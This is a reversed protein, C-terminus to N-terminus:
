IADAAREGGELKVAAAGAKLLRAASRVAQAPSAQYSGFPLDAVVLARKTGRVVAAVLPVLEDVTVPLTTEHGYVTNSASDGVLLVPIGTDDFVGATLADYATLMPWREGREKAAAIDRVTVRRGTKGGYLAAPRGSRSSSSPRSSATGAPPVAHSVSMSVELRSAGRHRGRVHDIIGNLCRSRYGEPNGKNRYSDTEYRLRM